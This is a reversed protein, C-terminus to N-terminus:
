SKPPTAKKRDPDMHLKWGGTEKRFEIPESKEKGAKGIVITGKAADGDIAVATLRGAKLQAVAHDAKTTGLVAMMEALFGNRDKVYRALDKTATTNAGPKGKAEKMAALTDLAAQRVDADIGHKDLVSDINKLKAKGEDSKAFQPGIQKLLAGSLVM